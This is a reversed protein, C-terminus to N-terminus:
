WVRPTRHGLIVRYPCRVQAVDDGSDRAAVAALGLRLSPRAVVFDLPRLAQQRSGLGLDDPAVVLCILLERDAPTRDVVCDTRHDEVVNGEDDPDGPAEGGPVNAVADVDM